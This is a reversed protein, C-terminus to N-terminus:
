FIITIDVYRELSKNQSMQQPAFRNRGPTAIKFASSKVGYKELAHVVNAARTAGLEFNSPYKKTQIPDVDAYGDIHIVTNYEKVLVALKKLFDHYEKAIKASGSSFLIPLVTKLRTKNKGPCSVFELWDSLKTKEIRSMIEKKLADQKSQHKDKQLKAQIAQKKIKLGKLLNTYNLKEKELAEAKQTKYNLSNYISEPVPLNMSTMKKIKLTLWETNEKLELIELQTAILKTKYDKELNWANEHELMDMERTNASLSQVSIILFLCVFWPVLKKLSITIIRTNM